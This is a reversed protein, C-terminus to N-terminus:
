TSGSSRTQSPCQLRRRGDITPSSHEAMSYGCVPCTYAPDAAPTPPDSARGVEAPGLFRLAFAYLRAGLWPKPESM